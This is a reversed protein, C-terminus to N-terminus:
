EHRQKGSIACSMGLGAVSTRAGAGRGCGQACFCELGVGATASVVLMHIPRARSGVASRAQVTLPEGAGACGAGAGSVAAVAAGRVAAAGVAAARVAARRVAAVGGEAAAARGATVLSRTKTSSFWESLWIRVPM